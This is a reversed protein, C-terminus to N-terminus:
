ESEFRVRNNDDDVDFGAARYRQCAEDSLITMGTEQLISLGAQHISELADQSLLEFPASRYRLPKWPSQPINGSIRGSISKNRQPRRRSRQTM